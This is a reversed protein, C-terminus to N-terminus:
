EGYIQEEIQQLRFDGQDSAEREDLDREDARLRDRGPPLRRDGLPAVGQQTIVPSRERRSRSM